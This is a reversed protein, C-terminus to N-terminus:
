PKVEKLSAFQVREVVELRPTAMPDSQGNGPPPMGKVEAYLSVWM